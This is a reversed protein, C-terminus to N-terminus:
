SKFLDRHTQALHNEFSAALLRNRSYKKPKLSSLKSMEVEISQLNFSTLIRLIIHFPVEFIESSQRPGVPVLVVLVPTECRFVIHEFVIQM